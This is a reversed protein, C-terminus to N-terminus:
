RGARMAVDRISQVVAALDQRLEAMTDQRGAAMEELIRLLQVDINRLRMRAESDMGGGGDVGERLLEAIKDQAEVFRQQLETGQVQSRLSREQGAVLKEQAALTRLNDEAIQEQAAAM